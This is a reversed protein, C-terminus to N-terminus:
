EESKAVRKAVRRAKRPSDDGSRSEATAEALADVTDAATAEALERQEADWEGPAYVKGEGTPEGTDLNFGGPGFAQGLSPVYMPQENTRPKDGM